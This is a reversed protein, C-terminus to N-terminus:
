TSTGKGHMSHLAEGAKEKLIMAEITATSNRPAEEVLNYIDRDEADVEIDMAIDNYMRGEVKVDVVDDVTVTVTPAPATTRTATGNVNVPMTANVSSANAVQQEMDESLFAPTWEGAACDGECVSTHTAEYPQGITTEDQYKPVQVYVSDPLTSGTGNVEAYRYLPEPHVLTSNTATTTNFSGTAGMFGDDVQIFSDAVTHAAQVGSVGIDLANLAVSGSGVVAIITSGIM